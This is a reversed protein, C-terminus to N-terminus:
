HVRRSKDEAVVLPIKSDVQWQAWAVDEPVALVGEYHRISQLIEKYRTLLKLGERSLEAKMSKETQRLLQKDIKLLCKASSRHFKFRRETRRKEAMQVRKFRRETM